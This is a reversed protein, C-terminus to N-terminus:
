SSVWRAGAVLRIVYSFGVSFTRASVWRWNLLRNERTACNPQKNRIMEHSKCAFACARYNTGSPQGVAAPTGTPLWLRHPWRQAPSRIPNIQNFKKRKATVVCLWRKEFGSKTMEGFWAANPLWKHKVKTFRFCTLQKDAININNSDIFFCDISSFCARKQPSFITCKVLM